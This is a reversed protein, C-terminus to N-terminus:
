EKVLTWIPGDVTSVIKYGQDLLTKLARSTRNVSVIIKRGMDEEEFPSSPLKELTANPDCDISHRSVVCVSVAQAQAISGLIVLFFVAKKM